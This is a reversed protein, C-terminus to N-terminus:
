GPGSIPAPGASLQFDFWKLGFIIAKITHFGSTHEKTAKDQKQSTAPGDPQNAKPVRVNHLSVWEKM